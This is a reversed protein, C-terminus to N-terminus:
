HPEEQGLDPLLRRGQPPQERVPVPKRLNASRQALSRRVDDAEDAV